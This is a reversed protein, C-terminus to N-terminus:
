YNFQNYCSSVLITRVYRRGQGIGSGANDAAGAGAGGGAALPNNSAGAAKESDELNSFSLGRSLAKGFKAPVKQPKHRTDLFFFM